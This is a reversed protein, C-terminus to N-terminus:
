NENWKQDLKSSLHHFNTDINDIHNNNNNNNDDTFIGDLHQKRTKNLKNGVRDEITIMIVPPIGDIGHTSLTRTSGWERYSM